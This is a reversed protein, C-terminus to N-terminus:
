RRCSRIGEPRVKRLGSSESMRCSPSLSSATDLAARASVRLGAASEATM